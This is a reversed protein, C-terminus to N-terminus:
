RTSQGGSPVTAASPPSPQALSDTPGSTGTGCPPANPPTTARERTYYWLFAGAVLVAGLIGLGFTGFALAIVPM